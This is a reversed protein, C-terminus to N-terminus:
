KPEPFNEITWIGGKPGPIFSMSRCDRFGNWASVFYAIMNRDGVRQRRKVIQELRSRLAWVPSGEPLGFPKLLNDFFEYGWETDIEAFRYAVALSVSPPCGSIRRYGRATLERFREMGGPNAKAWAVIDSTTVDAQKHDGFLLGERWRILVRVAAAVTKDSEIGAITLQEYAQRKTGQDMTEQSQADLGYVVLTPFSTPSDLETIAACRHQGDRMTGDRDFKVAEGNFQWQGAGLVRVLEAVKGPRIARNHTNHKLLRRALDTDIDVIGAYVGVYPPIEALKMGEFEM